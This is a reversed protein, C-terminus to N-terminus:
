NGSLASSTGLTGAPITSWWIMPRSEGPGAHFVIERVSSAGQLVHIRGDHRERDKINAGLLLALRKEQVNLTTRCDNSKM